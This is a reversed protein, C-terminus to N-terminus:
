LRFMVCGIYLMGFVLFSVSCYLVVATIIGNVILVAKNTHRGFLKKLLFLGFIGVAGGLTNLIVDTTNSSGIALTYQVIEFM